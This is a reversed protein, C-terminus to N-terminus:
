VEMIARIRKYYELKKRVATERSDDLRIGPNNMIRDHRYDEVEFIKLEEFKGRIRANEIPSLRFRNRVLNATEENVVVPIRREKGLTMLRAALNVTNGIVTYQRYSDTGLTGVAIDGTAIGIGIVFLERCEVHWKRRLEMVADQMLIASKVAHRAHKERDGDDELGFVALLGDGQYNIIYGHNASVVRNMVNIYEELMYMVDAPNYRESLTTYGKIDCFLVTCKRVVTQFDNDPNGNQLVRILPDPVFRQVQKQTIYYRYFTVMSVFFPISFLLPSIELNIGHNFLVVTMTLIFIVFLIATIYMRKHSVSPILLGAFAGLLLLLAMSMLPSINSIFRRQSLASINSATSYLVSYRPNGPLPVAFKKGYEGDVRGVLLLKGKIDNLHKSTMIEQFSYTDFSNEDAPLFISNYERDTPIRLSELYICGDGVVINRSSAGTFWSLIVMELSPLSKGNWNIGLKAKRMVGDEDAVPMIFGKDRVYNMYKGAPMKVRLKESGDMDQSFSYAGFVPIGKEMKRALKEETEKSGASIVPSLLVVGKAGLKEAKNLFKLTNHPSLLGPFKGATENDIEVLAMQDSDSQPRPHSIRYIFLKSQFLISELRNSVPLYIFVLVLLLSSALYLLKTKETQKEYKM